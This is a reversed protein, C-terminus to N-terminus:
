FRVIFTAVGALGVSCILPQQIINTHKNKGTFLTAIAIGALFLPTTKMDLFYIRLLSRM